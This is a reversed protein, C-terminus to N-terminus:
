KIRRPRRQSSIEGGTRELLKQDSNLTNRPCTLNWNFNENQTNLCGYFSGEDPFELNVITHNAVVSSNDLRQTPQYPLM